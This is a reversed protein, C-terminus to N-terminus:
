PKVGEYQGREAAGRLLIAVALVLPVVGAVLFVTDAAARAWDRAQYTGSV